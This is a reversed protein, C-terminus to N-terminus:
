IVHALTKNFFEITREWAQAAAKPLYADPRDSEFFWHGAGPYIIIEANPANMQKVDELSEWDDNEAYHCLFGAKSTSLDAGGLRDTPSTSPTPM